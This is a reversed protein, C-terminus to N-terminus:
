HDKTSFINIPIKTLLSACVHTLSGLDHVDHVTCTNVKYNICTGQIKMCLCQQGPEM